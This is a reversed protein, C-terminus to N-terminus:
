CMDGNWMLYFDTMKKKLFELCSKEGENNKWKEQFNGKMKSFYVVTYNITCADLAGIVSVYAFKSM